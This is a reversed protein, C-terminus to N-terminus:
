QTWVIYSSRVKPAKKQGGGGKEVANTSLTHGALYFTNRILLGLWLDNEKIHYRIQHCSFNTWSQVKDWVIFVSVAFLMACYNKILPSKKHCWIAGNECSYSKKTLNSVIKWPQFASSQFCTVHLCLFLSMQEAAWAILYWRWTFIFFISPSMMSINLAYM